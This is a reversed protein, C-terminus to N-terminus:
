CLRRCPSFAWLAACTPPHVPPPPSTLLSSVDIPMCLRALAVRGDGAWGANVRWHLGVMREGKCRALITDEAKDLNYGWVAVEACGAADPAAALPRLAELRPFLSSSGTALVHVVRGERVLVLKDGLQILMAHESWFAEPQRAVLREVVARVGSSALLACEEPGM